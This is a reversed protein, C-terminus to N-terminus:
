STLTAVYADIIQKSSRPGGFTWVGNPFPYTRKEKVAPLSAWIQNKALEPMIDSEGDTTSTHFLAADGVATMGEIDTSGLGYAPDVQGTWANRLGLAEGLEGVLSGQGFPRLAVNGGSIYGDFYVFSGVEPDAAEVKQKAQALHSRFDEVVAAARAERGTAKGILSFTAIMNEVPDATDAGKTALVPVKLKELQTLIDDKASYTEVIILDPNSAVLADINPEGRTGVDTVGAPLKEATNWTTFGKADAVAVPTVCLTLADEIQQWELVAVRTAPSKLEVTRGWSDTLTLPGTATPSPQAACDGTAPAAVTAAGSRADTDTTGCAALTLCVAAALASVATPRHKM